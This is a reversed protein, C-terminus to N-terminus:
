GTTLPASARQVSAADLGTDILQDTFREVCARARRVERMRRRGCVIRRRVLDARM